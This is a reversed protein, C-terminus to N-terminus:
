LQQYLRGHRWTSVGVNALTCAKVETCSQAMKSMRAGGHALVGGARCVSWVNEGMACLFASDSVARSARQGKCRSLRSAVPPASSFRERGERAAVRTEGEGCWM